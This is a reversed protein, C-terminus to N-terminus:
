KKKLVIQEAEKAVVQNYFEKLNPYETQIFINKNIQFRRTLNIVSGSVTVNYLYKASNDALTLIKNEPMEDIAYGEPVTLKFMYTKEQMSGFDVPYLREALKFPNSEERQTIFPNIYILDGAASAHDNIVIEHSEIVPNEIEKINEFTSNKLTWTKTSAFDKLYTEEGKFAYNTRMRNADYGDRSYSLKGSVEGAEDVTVDVVTTTKSKTKTSLNIWGSNKESIIFGDGNLCHEPLVNLPLFKNTADMWVLKNDPLRVLCVVYNFQSSMPFEKRIFGNDRTSLLVPEVNFGAKELMSALLLNIDGSSGKKAALTEKPTEAYYDKYHDWVVNNKVYSHIANLRQTDDTLGATVEEVTKKLYPSGNIIKGFGSSALLDTNLKQWSGMIEQTVQRPFSIHSLAFNIKTIYDDGSTMFPEEKFAPVNDIVWRHAQSNYEPTPRQKVSYDSVTLYGQMYKEYIFFDPITAWFESHRTPITEQFQWDPFETLFESIIKYSYEIVCGEKVNPLTFKVINRNRNFKERFIADKDMKTEVIKGNELNYTSAKLGSVKEENSGSHYL